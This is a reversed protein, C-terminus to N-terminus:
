CVHNQPQLEFWSFVCNAYNTMTQQTPSTIQHFLFCCFVFQSCHWFENHLKFLIRDLWWCFVDSSRRLFYEFYYFILWCVKGTTTNDDYKLDGEMFLHRYLLSACGRMPACLDFMTCHQKVLKELNKNTTDQPYTFLVCSHVIFKFFLLCIFLVLM